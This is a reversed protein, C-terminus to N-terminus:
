HRDGGGVGRPRAAHPWAGPGKRSHGFPAAFGRGRHGILQGRHARPDAAGAAPVGDARARRLRGARGHGPVLAQPCRAERGHFGRPDARRGGAPHPRQHGEGARDIQRLPRQRTRARRTAALAARLRRRRRPHPRGSQGAPRGGRRDSGAPAPVGARAQHRPSRARRGHGRAVDIGRRGRRDPRGLRLAAERRRHQGGRHGLRLLPRTPRGAGALGLRRAARGDQRHM